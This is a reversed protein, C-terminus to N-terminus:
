NLNGNISSAATCHRYLVQGKYSDLMWGLGYLLAPAFEPDRTQGGFISHPTLTEEISKKNLVQKGDIMGYNMITRGWRLLDLVNSYMDGAPADAMYIEDLYGEVFEGRQAEEWSQARFPMAHNPNKRMEKPSFGSNHLGLPKLVKTTVLEEYPVGAVNSAAEGAVAYMGNNYLNTAKLKSSVDLYRLRKILDRRSETARFWIMDISPLGTRHSLLDAFTLQSTLLPDKLEFEPLYKSVSTTDWDLKGEAVMEGIATATFAKTVSAIPMLTEPTFPDGKANRKGFGEAYVIEGKHYIAVSMGPVGVRTLAKKLIETLNGLTHLENRIQM